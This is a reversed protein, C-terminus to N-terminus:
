EVYEVIRVGEIGDAVYLFNNLVCLGRCTGPTDYTAAVFPLEGSNDVAVLGTQSAAIFILDGEPYINYSLGPTDLAQVVQPNQADDFNIIRYGDPGDAVYVNRDGNEVTSYVGYAYGPTDLTSIYQPSNPPTVGAIILGRLGCALLAYGATISIDEVSAGTLNLSDVVEPDLVDQVRISILGSNGRGALIYNGTLAICYTPPPLYAAGVLHPYFPNSVDIILLGYNADAVYAYIGEVIVDVAMIDKTMYTGMRFPATPVTIDYIELGDAGAAIFAEDRAIVVALAEGDTPCFGLEYLGLGRKTQFQWIPGSTSDGAFDRAVVKWFYRTDYALPQTLSFNSSTLNHAKQGPPYLSDFYFDYFLAESDPDECRWDILTFTSVDVAEDAPIPDHPANPPHNDPNTSGSKSCASLILLSFIFIIFTLRTNNYISLINPMM